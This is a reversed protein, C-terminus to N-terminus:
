RKSKLHQELDRVNVKMGGAMIVDGPKQDPKCDGVYSGELTMNSVAPTDGEKEKTTREM